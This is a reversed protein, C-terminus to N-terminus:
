RANDKGGDRMLRTFPNYYGDTKSIVGSYGKGGLKARSIDAFMGEHIADMLSIQKVKELMDAAKQLVECARLEIRGGSKFEIEEGLHRMTHFVYKANEISLYRDQLLPTHIAETLMGLLHITQGTMVSVANFLADQIHGKFINGTMYKTPPMYKIPSRPFIQRIMQAQALEWLFGDEMDPNIEFAHGLGIQEEHLGSMLAFQENIFQSALVTHAKEYADATTLYNDEGTNIVVGAYANVMRSFFQDIFTRVMNIDRFIIGYMSDNLMTDLRELAGMVAIEPMCLGSCYNTLYIYRGAEAGAEDLAARMLRFNEQTAYTGGFGEMTAGYPVYDLLSQGTSRIIAIFDAGQRVAAKAQKIDEYINGTAVILYLYPAEGLGLSKILRTREEKNKRIRNCAAEALTDVYKIIQDEDSYVTLLIDIKGEAVAAAIEQPTSAYQLCARALPLAAGKGLLGREQMHETVINPLPIGDENIGDLGLLRLTAREVATTTYGAVEDQVKRAICQANDRARAIIAPDLNLHAM